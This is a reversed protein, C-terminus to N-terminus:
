RDSLGSPGDTVEMCGDVVMLLINNLSHGWLETDVIQRSYLM